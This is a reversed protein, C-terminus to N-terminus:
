HKGTKWHPLLTCLNYQWGSVNPRVLLLRPISSLPLVGVDEVLLQDAQAYLAARKQTDPEADAKQCLADFQPNSYGSRNLPAKSMLLTSLFNQADPYDAYWSALYCELERRNGAQFYEGAEREQIRVDIGLNTKLDAQILTAAALTEPQQQVVSITIAPFGKGEPYGASALLTKAKAPDYPLPNTHSAGELLEPPVFGNAIQAVGRNAVKVVNVRDIALAFAQRIAKKAFLPQRQSQMVLYSVNASPLAKYEASFKGQQKDQAYRAPAIGAVMDLENAVFSNYQAESSLLIPFEIRAVSPKSGWYKEFAEVVVREGPKYEVFRFPGTGVVAASGFKDKEAEVAERCVVWNSTYGLMSLFYARPRDLTVTLTAKYVVKVGALDTSKGALCDALGVVGELYNAAVSSATKPAVAREWSYKVDVAELPRGNHFTVNPRLHFTYTKADPSLEWKEALAAELKNDKNFRVLGEFCNMLLEATYLDQVKAPDLSVPEINMAVKLTEAAAATGGPNQSASQGGKTTCGSVLSLASLVSLSFVLHSLLNKKMSKPFYSIFCLFPAPRGKEKEGRRGRQM